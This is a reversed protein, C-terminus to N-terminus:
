FPHWAEQLIGARKRLLSFIFLIFILSLFVHVALWKWTAKQRPTWFSDQRAFGNLHFHTGGVRENEHLDFENEHM